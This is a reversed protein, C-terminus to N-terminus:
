LDFPRQLLDDVGRLEVPFEFMNKFDEGTDEMDEDEEDYYWVLTVDTADQHVVELMKLMDVFCKSSSTNMYELQFIVRTTPAPNELYEKLWDTVKTFFARADEPISRGVFRMLGTSSELYIEPTRRDAGLYFREGYGM